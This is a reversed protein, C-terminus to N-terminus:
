VGAFDARCSLGNVDSAGNLGNSTVTYIHSCHIRPMLFKCRHCGVTVTMGAAVPLSLILCVSV